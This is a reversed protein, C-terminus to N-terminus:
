ERHVDRDDGRDIFFVPMFDAQVFVHREVFVGLCELERKSRSIDGVHDHFM